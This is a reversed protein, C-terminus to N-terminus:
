RGIAARFAGRRVTELEGATAGLGALRVFEARLTVGFLGPDDTSLSIPVGARALALAPHRGPPVAGTAENSSLCLDLAIGSAALRRVLAGDEAARFGHALRVPSLWRLAEQVSEPGAWEGAHVLPALGLRRVRRYVAAFDRAPVSAEEGGLGFGRARPWPHAEHLDLVRNAADPGWQRVSDLLVVVRGRRGAAAESAEHRALVAEVAGQVEPWSLGIREVVAPSVYM